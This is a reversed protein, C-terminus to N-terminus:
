GRDHSAPDARNLLLLRYLVLGPQTEKTEITHGGYDDKRLDRLRATISLPSIGTLECLELPSHWRGDSLVKLLKALKGKPPTFKPERPVEATNQEVMQASFSKEEPMLGDFTLQEYM